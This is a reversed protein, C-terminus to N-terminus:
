AFVELYGRGLSSRSTTLEIVFSHRCEASLASLYGSGNGPVAVPAEAPCNQGVKEDASRGSTSAQKAERRRALGQRPPNVHISVEVAARGVFPV